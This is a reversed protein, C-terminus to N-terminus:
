NTVFDLTFSIKAGELVDDSLSSLWIYFTLKQTESVDEFAAIETEDKEISKTSNKVDKIAIFINKRQEKIETEDKDSEIKVNKVLIKYNSSTKVFVTAYYGESTGEDNITSPIQTEQDLEGTAPKLGITMDSLKLNEAKNKLDKDEYVTIGEAAVVKVESVIIKREAYEFYSFCIGIVSFVIAMFIVLVSAAVSKKNM